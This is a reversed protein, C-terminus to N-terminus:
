SCVFFITSILPSSKTPPHQPHLPPSTPHLPPSTPHMAPSSHSSASHNPPPSIARNSALSTMPMPSAPHSPPSATRMSPSASNIARLPPSTHASAAHQEMTTQQSSPMLPPSSPPQSPEPVRFYDFTTTHVHYPKSLSNTKSNLSSTLTQVFSSGSM